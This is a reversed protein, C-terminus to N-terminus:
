GTEPQGNNRGAIPWIAEERRFGTKHWIDFTMIIFSPLNFHCWLNWISYGHRQQRWYFDPFNTQKVFHDYSKFEFHMKMTKMLYFISLKLQAYRGSNQCGKRFFLNKVNYFIWFNMLSVYISVTRSIELIM